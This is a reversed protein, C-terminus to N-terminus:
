YPIAPEQHPGDPETFKDWYSPNQQLLGYSFVSHGLAGSQRAIDIRSTIESFSSYGAGVGAVIKGPGQNQVFDSVLVGYHSAFPDNNYNVPYLMPMIADIIGQQVWRQSDQYYDHYGQSASLGWEPKLQYVPWVAASFFVDNALSQNIEAVLDTIMDRQYNKWDNTGYGYGAAQTYPDWSYQSGPYRIYDLHIGDVQYRQAIDLVVGKIHERVYPAAPSAFLYKGSELNM